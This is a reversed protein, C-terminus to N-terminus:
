GDYRALISAVQRVYGGGFLAVHVLLPWLTLVELREDLARDFPTGSAERYAAYFAESFGGFLQTMALDQEPHGYCAAPDIFHPGAITHLLNGGWLDGHILAPAVPEGLLRELPLAELRRRSEAPLHHALPELRRERFFAVFSTGSASRNDQPVAGMYNDHDLGFREGTIAHLGALARGATADSSASGSAPTLGSLALAQDMVALVRPVPLAGSLLALGQAEAEFFGPGRGSPPRRHHKVFIPGAATTVRFAENISGGAVRDVREVRTALARELEAVVPPPLSVAILIDYRDCM